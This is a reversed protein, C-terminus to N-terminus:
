AGEGKWLRRVYGRSGTQAVVRGPNGLVTAGAPVDFNVFAGPGVMADDGITCGGVVCAGPGLWVRDGIRPYGKRKGVTVRGVTVGHAINCNAGIRARSNVVVHGPHRGLNLGPGVETQPPIEIGQARAARRWWATAVAFAPRWLGHRRDAGGRRTWQAVRFAVLYRFRPESYWVAAFARADVCGIYRHLDSAILQRLSPSERPPASTLREIM